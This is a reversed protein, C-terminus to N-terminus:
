VLEFKSIVAFLEPLFFFFLIGAYIYWKEQDRQMLVIGLIPVFMGTPPVSAALFHRLTSTVNM